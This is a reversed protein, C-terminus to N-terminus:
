WKGALCRNMTGCRRHPTTTNKMILRMFPVMEPFEDIPFNRKISRTLEYKEGNRKVYNLGLMTNLLVKLGQKSCGTQEVLEGATRSEDKLYNFLRVDGAAYLASPTFSTMIGDIMYSPIIGNSILLREAFNPLLPM